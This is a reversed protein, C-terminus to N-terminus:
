LVRTVRMRRQGITQTSFKKMGRNAKSVLLSKHNRVRTKGVRNHRINAMTSPYEYVYWDPDDSGVVISGGISLSQLQMMFAARNANVATLTPQQHAPIQGNSARYIASTLRALESVFTKFPSTIAIM